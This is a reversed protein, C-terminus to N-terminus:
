GEEELRDAIQGLSEAADELIGYAGGIISEGAWKRLEDAALRIGAVKGEQRGLKMAEQHIAVVEAVAKEAGAGV